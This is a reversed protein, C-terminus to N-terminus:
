LHWCEAGERGSFEQAWTSSLGIFALFICRSVNWGKPRLTVREVKRRIAWAKRITPSSPNSHPDQGSTALCMMLISPGLATNRLFSAMQSKEKGYSHFM